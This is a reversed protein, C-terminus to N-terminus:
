GLEGLYTKPIFKGKHRDSICEYDLPHVEEGAKYHNGLDSFDVTCVYVQRGVKKHFRNRFEELADDAWGACYAAEKETGNSVALFAKVWFINDPVKDADSCLPTVPISDM